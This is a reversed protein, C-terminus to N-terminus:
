REQQENTMIPIDNAMESLTEVEDKLLAPAYLARLFESFHTLPSEDEPSSNRNHMKGTTRAKVSCLIVSSYVISLILVISMYSKSHAM